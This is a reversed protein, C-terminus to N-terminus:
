GNLTRDGICNWRQASTASPSAKSVHGGVDGVGGGGVVSGGMGPLKIGETGRFDKPIQVDYALVASRLNTPSTDSSPTTTSRNVNVNANDRLGPFNQRSLDMAVGCNQMQSDFNRLAVTM